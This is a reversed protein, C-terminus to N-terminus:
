VRVLVLEIVSTPSSEMALAIRAISKCKPWQQVAQTGAPYFLIM